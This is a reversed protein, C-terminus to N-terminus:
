KSYINETIKQETIDIAPNNEVILIPEVIQAKANIVYDEISKAM